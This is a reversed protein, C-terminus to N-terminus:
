KSATLAEDNIQTLALNNLQSDADREEDLTQQLLDAISSLELIEAIARSTGYAAMEYHEVRQAAGILAVDKIEPVGKKKIIEAGEAVLGEMAKCKKRKPKESLESFISDLRAVQGETVKLHDEFAARLNDSCAAKAMKPLAELMQKEASYLDSLEDILLERMSEM